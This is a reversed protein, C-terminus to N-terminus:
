ALQPESVRSLPLTPEHGMAVCISTPDFTEHLIGPQTYLLHSAIPAEGRMLSDLTACADRAYETNAEMDGAYPSEVIMLRM